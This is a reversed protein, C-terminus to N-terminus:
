SRVRQDAWMSCAEGLIRLLIRHHMTRLQGYDGQHPTWTMSGYLLAEIAEAKAMRTKLAIAATPRDYLQTSYRKVRMWCARIRRQIEITM